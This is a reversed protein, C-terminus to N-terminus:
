PRCLIAGALIVGQADSVAVLQGPASPLQPEHFRILMRAAPSKPPGQLRIDAPVAKQRYRTRVFLDSPWLDPPVLLNLEAAVYSSVKLEAATGLVLANSTRDKDLVYLPESWAVGLGRRQGETYQWLGEHHGVVLGDTTVMAGGAPLHMRSQRLFSRYDDNPVFCIEQSERSLPVAINSQAFFDRVDQKCVDGMPFCAASLSKLPTLALFYSQDKKSDKGRCLALGYQPHEILKAYHGTALKEAGLKQAEQLLLGFKIRRNCRACPNPTEGRVYAEVFPRIVMDQFQERLDLCSFAIGLNECLAALKQETNEPEPCFRGHIALVQSAGLTDRFHLLTYLSDMGGSVAVAVLMM